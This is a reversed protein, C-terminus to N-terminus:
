AIWLPHCDTQPRSELRLADPRAVYKRSARSHTCGFSLISTPGGVQVVVYSPTVYQRLQKVCACAFSTDCRFCEAAKATCGDSFEEVLDNNTLRTIHQRATTSDPASLSRRRRRPPMDAEPTEFWGVGHRQRVEM